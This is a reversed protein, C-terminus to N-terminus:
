QENQAINDSLIKNKKYILGKEFLLATMNM